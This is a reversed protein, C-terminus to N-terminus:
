GFRFFHGLWIHQLRLNMFQVSGTLRSLGTGRLKVALAESRTGLQTVCEGNKGRGNSGAPKAKSKKPSLASTIPSVV